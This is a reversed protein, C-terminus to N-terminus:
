MQIHKPSIPSVNCREDDGILTKYFPCIRCNLIIAVCSYVTSLCGIIAFFLIFFFGAGDIYFSNLINDPMYDAISVDFEGYENDADNLKDLDILKIKKSVEKAKEYQVKFTTNQVFTPQIFAQPPYIINDVQMTYISNFKVALKAIIAVNWQSKLVNEGDSRLRICGNEDTGDIINSEEVGWSKKIMDNNMIDQKLDLFIKENANRNDILLRIDKSSKYQAIQGTAEYTGCGISFIDNKGIKDMSNYLYVCGLHSDPYALSLPFSLVNNIDIRINYKGYCSRNSNNKFDAHMLKANSLISKEGLAPIAKNGCGQSILGKPLNINQTTLYVGRHKIVLKVPLTTSSLIRGWFRSIVTSNEVNIPSKSLRFTYTLKARTTSFTYFWEGKVVITGIEINGEPDLIQIPVDGFDIDPLAGSIISPVEM